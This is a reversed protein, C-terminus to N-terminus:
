DKTMLLGVMLLNGGLYVLTVLGVGIGGLIVARISPLKFEETSSWGDSRKQLSVVLSSGFPPRTPDIHITRLPM